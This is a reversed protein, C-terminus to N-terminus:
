AQFLGGGGLIVLDTHRVAGAIAMPDRWWLARVGYAEATRPPDGSLITIEVDPVRERLHGTIVQAIAEDGANGFGTYGAILIRQVREM